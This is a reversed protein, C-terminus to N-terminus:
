QLPLTVYRAENVQKSFLLKFIDSFKISIFIGLTYM